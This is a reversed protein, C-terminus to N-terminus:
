KLCLNFLRDKKNLFWIMNTHCILVNNRPNFFKSFKNVNLTECVSMNLNKELVDILINCVNIIDTSINKKIYKKFVKDKILFKDIDLITHLNNRFSFLDIPSIKNFIIKRYLFEIDKITQLRKRIPMFTDNNEIIYDITDYERNLYEINTTPHLIIDKFGRRGMSTVCKNILREISSYQGKVNHPNVINLQRLSHNALVLRDSVNDFLPHNIKHTLNPNHCYIFDLLFCFSKFAM